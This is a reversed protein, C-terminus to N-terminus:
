PQLLDPELNAWILLHSPILKLKRRAPERQLWEEEMFKRLVPRSGAFPLLATAARVRLARSAQDKNLRGLLAELLPRVSGPQIKALAEAANVALLDAGLGHSGDVPNVRAARVGKDVYGQVVARLLPAAKAERVKDFAGIVFLGLAPASAPPTELSTRLYELITQSQPVNLKVLAAATDVKAPDDPELRDYLRLTLPVAASNGQNALALALDVRNPNLRFAKLLGESVEPKRWQGLALVLESVHEQRHQLVQLTAERQAEDRNLAFITAVDVDLNIALEKALYAYGTARGYRYLLAAMQIKRPKESLTLLLREMVDLMVATYPEGFFAFGRLIDQPDDLAQWFEPTDAYVGIKAYSRIAEVKQQTPLPKLFRELRASVEAPTQPAKNAQPARSDRRTGNKPSGAQPKAKRPQAQCPRTTVISCGQAVALVSFFCAVIKISKRQKAAM